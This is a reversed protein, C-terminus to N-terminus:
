PGRIKPNSACIQFIILRVCSVDADGDDTANEAAAADDDADGDEGDIM